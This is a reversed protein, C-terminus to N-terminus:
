ECHNVVFNVVYTSWNQPIELTAHARRGFSDTMDTAPTNLNQTAYPIEIEDGPLEPEFIAEEFDYFDEVQEDVKLIFAWLHKCPNGGRFYPCTCVMGVEGDAPDFQLVIDYIMSGAVTGSADIADVYDITVCGQRAYRYGRKRVTPSFRRKLTDSLQMPSLDHMASISPTRIAFYDYRPRHSGTM